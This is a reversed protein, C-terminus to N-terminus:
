ELRRWVESRGMAYSREWGPLVAMAAALQPQQRTDLLVCGIGYDNLLAPVNRGANLELYDDWLALPYLEVRPDIFSQAAPYLAWAMYSGYGLENFIPGACPEARLHEVAGVPTSAAFAMPAGPLAAYTTRMETPWPLLHITWPQMLALLALMLLAAFLTGGPGVGRERPPVGGAAGPAISFTPRPAALAQAALPMAVMGFWVVYRVGVFAQWALGCVLLVDTITPRRRQFAFAAILGLVGLYFIGGALTRPNPTQWENILNQSATDSLMTSLYAFVHVGLPNVLTAAGLALCGLYLARLRPWPLARPHRLLRRLTEGVAFAGAMLLGMVFAGHANVWFLMLLPMVILWRPGIKGEVYRSLLFFLALFPLWSWNQTRTTLNNITMAAAFFAAGAAWRWSGTRQHTEVAVMTFALTGLLNRAFIVLPFGGLQYILYFLYEGLWSQYVYPHDAPLTWAFRNTTPIGETAVLEGAKLHWWFDNPLTPVLSIVIGITCIALLAWLHELRLQLLSLARPPATAASAHEVSDEPSFSM